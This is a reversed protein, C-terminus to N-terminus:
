IHQFIRVHQQDRHFIVPKLQSFMDWSTQAGDNEVVYLFVYDGSGYLRIMDWYIQADCKQVVYLFVTLTIAISFSLNITLHRCQTFFCNKNM